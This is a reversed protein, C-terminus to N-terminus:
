PRVGEATRRFALTVQVYTWNADTAGANAAVSEVSQEIYDDGRDWAKMAECGKRLSDTFLGASEGQGSGVAVPAACRRGCLLRLLALRFETM